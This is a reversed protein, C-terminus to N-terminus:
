AARTIRTTPRASRSAPFARRLKDVDNLLEWLRDVSVPVTFDDTLQM